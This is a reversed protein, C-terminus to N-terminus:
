AYEELSLDLIIVRIVGERTVDRWAESAEKCVWDGCVVGGLLLPLVTGTETADRLVTAEAEPDVGLSADLRISLSLTRLAPGGFEQIPKQGIVEHASWRAATKHRADDFTRVLEGSAEFVVEGLTALM